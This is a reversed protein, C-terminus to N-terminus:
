QTVSATKKLIKRMEEKIRYAYPTKAEDREVYGKQYLKKMLRATHERTLGIESKIEPATKQGEDTLIELVRLETATLQALARERKIPIVGRIQVEQPKSIRQEMSEQAKVVKDIRENLKEIQPLMQEKLGLATDVKSTIDSLRTEHKKLQDTIGTVDERKVSLFELKHGVLGVHEELRQLQNNFSIVIDKVIDKAEDYKEHVKRIRKYYLLITGMSLVLLVVTVVLLLDPYM